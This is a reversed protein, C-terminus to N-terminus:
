LAERVAAEEFGHLIEKNIIILPTVRGNLLDFMKRQEDDTEIDYEIYPLAHKAFFQKAQRCYVCSQTGFMVIQPPDIRLTLAEESLSFDPRQQASYYLAAIVGCLILWPILRKQMASSYRFQNGAM